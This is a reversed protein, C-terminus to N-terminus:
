MATGCRVQDPDLTCVVFEKANSMEDDESGDSVSGAQDMAKSKGKDKPKGEIMGNIANPEDVDIDGSSETLVKMLAEKKRAKPTKEPNSPGGNVQDDSEDDDSDEGLLDAVNVAGDDYDDDEDDSDDPPDLIIMKLTARQKMGPEVGLNEQWKEGPDIAAMTIRVIERTQSPAPSSLDNGPQPDDNPPVRLGWATSSSRPAM